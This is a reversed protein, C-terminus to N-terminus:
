ENEEVEFEFTYAPMFLDGDAFHLTVYEKPSLMRFKKGFDTIGTKNKNQSALTIWKLIIIRLDVPINQGTLESVSLRKNRTYDNIMQREKNIQKLKEQRHIEKEMNRITIGEAKIRPKYKRTVPRVEFMQPSLDAANEFISDTDRDTNYKYHEINMVGFVHASLCHAEDTERCAAFMEMYKHYEQKKSIGANQLQMLLLANNVMKRIIDNTYEMANNCNSERGDVAIFWAYLGNWENNIKEEIRSRSITESNARPIEMESELLRQILRDKTQPSIKKLKKEIKISHRQLQTIFNRLYEIFRDKHILFDISSILKEGNVSAFSYIYDSYNRSLRKFDEQLNRWWENLEKNSMECVATETQHLYDNIRVLLSSSLTNGESFMNELEITMREIIVADETLSYRYVKNQYEEITRVRRPDQMPSVCGWSTLQSLASKLKDSTLSSFNDYDRLKPMIDDISLQSNYSEKEIYLIRMVTRYLLADNPATLYSAANISNMKDINLKMSEKCRKMSPNFTIMIYWVRGVFESTDDPCAFNM